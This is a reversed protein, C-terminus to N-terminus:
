IWLSLCGTVSLWARTLPGADGSTLSFEKLLAVPALGTHWDMACLLGGRDCDLWLVPFSLVALFGVSYGGQPSSNM